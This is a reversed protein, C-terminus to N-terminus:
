EKTKTILFLNIWHQGLRNVVAAHDITNIKIGVINLSVPAFTM